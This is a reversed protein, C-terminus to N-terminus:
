RKPHHAGIDVYFGNPQGEFLARLIIDEGM